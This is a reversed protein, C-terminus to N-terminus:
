RGLDIIQSVNRAVFLERVIDTLDGPVLAYRARPASQRSAASLGLKSTSKMSIMRSTGVVSALSLFFV